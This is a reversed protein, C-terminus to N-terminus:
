AIRGGSTGRHCATQQPQERRCCAARGEEDPRKQDGPRKTQELQLRARRDHTQRNTRATHDRPSASRPPTSGRARGGAFLEALTHAQGRASHSAGVRHLWAGAQSAPLPPMEIQAWCRGPRVIAPHLRGVVSRRRWPQVTLSPVLALQHRGCTLSVIPARERGARQVAEQRALVARVEVDELAAALHLAQAQRGVHRQQELATVAVLIRDDVPEDGLAAVQDRELVLVRARVLARLARDRRHALAAPDQMLPAERTVSPEPIGSKRIRM